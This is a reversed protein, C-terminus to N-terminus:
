LGAMGAGAVVGVLGIVGGVLGTIGVGALGVLIWLISTLVSLSLTRWFPAKPAGFTPKTNCPSTKFFSSSFFPQTLIWNDLPWVPQTKPCYTEETAEETALVIVGVAELM